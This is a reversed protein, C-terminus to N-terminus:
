VPSATRATAARTPVVRSISLMGRVKPAAEHGACAGARAGTRAGACTYTQVRGRGAPGDGGVDHDDAGPDGSEGGRQAAVGGTQPGDDDGLGAEVVAGGAPGLAAYGRGQSLAVGGLLVEGVGQHRPDAEAVLVGDAGEDGLAGVGYATEDLGAGVEVLGFLAVQLQGALAAVVAATDGVRAAVRGAGLDGPGEDLGDARTPQARDLVREDQVEERVGVATRRTHGQVDHSLALVVAHSGDVRGGHDERGAAHALDERRGGVRRHGGAVAHRQRQPRAGLDGVQFEHLEVRGHQEEARVRLALLREDGLRDSALAGVEDVRVTLAEHQPLVFQGFQRGPVDDGLADRPAHLFLAGLVHVQVGPVEPRVHPLVAERRDQGGAAGVADVRDGLRDRDGRGGVVGGAAYAGVGPATRGHRAQVRAALDGARTDVSGVPEGGVGEQLAEDVGLADRRVDRVGVFPAFAVLPSLPAYPVLVALVGVLLGPVLLGPVVLVAEVRAHGRGGGPRLLGVVRQEGGLGPERDLPDHGVAGADQARGGGQLGGGVAELLQVGVGAVGEVLVALGGFGADVGPLRGVEQAHGADQHGGGAETLLGAAAVPALVPAFPVVVVPPAVDDYPEIGVPRERYM